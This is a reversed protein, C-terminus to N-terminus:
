YNYSKIASQHVLGANFRNSFVLQYNNNNFHRLLAQFQSGEFNNRSGKIFTTEFIISKILRNPDFKLRSLIEFDMGECDVCLLDIGYPNHQELLDNISIAPVSIVEVHKEPEDSSFRRIASLMLERNFSTKRYLTNADIKNLTSAFSSSISYLNIKNLKTPTIAANIFSLESQKRYTRQLDEYVHPIPEVLTGCWNDIKIFEFLPDNDVGNAAGIQIFTTDGISLKSIKTLFEYEEKRVLGSRLIVKNHIRRLFPHKDWLILANVLIKPLHNICIYKM